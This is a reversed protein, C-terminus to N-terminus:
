HNRRSEVPTQLTAVSDSIIQTQQMVQQSLAEYREFIANLAFATLLMTRLYFLSRIEIAL